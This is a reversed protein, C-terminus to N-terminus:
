SQMLYYNLVCLYLDPTYIKGVFIMNEGGGKGLSIKGGLLYWISQAFINIKGGETYSTTTISRRIM